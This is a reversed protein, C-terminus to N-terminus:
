RASVIKEFRELGEDPKQNQNLVWDRAKELARGPEITEMAIEFGAKLSSAKDAIYLIPAANLCAIDIRARGGRGSLADILLMAAGRTDDAAAIEGFSARKIGFDEPAVEYFDITGNSQLESVESIGLTSLEDIGTNPDGNRGFFVMAREFGIARMTSATKAVMDSSYVGRVARGPRAPNALSGAINLTSGFRIQSLIRFLARPHVKASMGNFIGIGTKEVSKKVTEVDCEVDVGIQELVDVTGSRSTIARAGHKALNVGNAAAIISAATSINFTKLADMGTGCNDLLPSLHTLNVKNTDHEYIAEFGGAIEEDTEGKMAMAAMFAGQQLDPQENAIIQRWCEESEDRTLNERKLLRTIQAGFSKLKKEDTM